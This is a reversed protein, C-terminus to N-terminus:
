FLEYVIKFSTIKIIIMSVVCPFSGLNRAGGGLAPNRLVRAIRGEERSPDGPNGGRYASISDKM